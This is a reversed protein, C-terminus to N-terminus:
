RVQFVAADGEEFVQEFYQTDSFKVIADAGFAKREVGDVYVYDIRQAHALRSAEAANTTKFMADVAGSRQDYETVHLLSIPEGAAMRRAAFTPILTWTERGRPGISMQVVAEDPTRERIWKMAAQTAPPVVVTWRFGPGM